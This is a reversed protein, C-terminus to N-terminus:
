KMGLFKWIQYIGGVVESYLRGGNCVLGQPSNCWLYEM